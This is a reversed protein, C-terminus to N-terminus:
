EHVSGAASAGVTKGEGYRGIAEVVMSASIDRPFDTVLALERRGSGPKCLVKFLAAAISEGVGLTRADKSTVTCDTGPSSQLAVHGFLDQSDVPEDPLRVNVRVDAQLGDLEGTNLLVIRKLSISGSGSPSAYTESKSLAVEIRPAPRIWNQLQRLSPGLASLSTGLASLLILFTLAPNSLYFHLPRSLYSGVAAKGTSKTEM